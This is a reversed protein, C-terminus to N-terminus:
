TRNDRYVFFKRAFYNWFLVIISALVKSLWINLGLKAIGIFLLLETLLLGLVSIFLVPLLEGAANETAASFILRRSCGFNFLFSVTFALIGALLYHVRNRVLLCYLSFDILFAGGGVLAYRFLQIYGNHTEELLLPKWRRHWLYFLLETM